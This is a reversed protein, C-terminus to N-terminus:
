VQAGELTVLHEQDHEFAKQMLAAVDLEGYVVHTGSKKWEADDLNRLYTCTANRLFEYADLLVNIDGAGFDSEWDFRAPDWYEWVPHDSQALEELRAQWVRREVRWLHGITAQTSWTKESSPQLGGTRIASRVQHPVDALRAILDAHEASQQMEGFDDQADRLEERLDDQSWRELLHDHEFHLIDISQWEIRKRLPAFDLYDSDQTGTFLIRLIVYADDQFSDMVEVQLDSFAGRVQAVYAQFAACDGSDSDPMSFDTYNGACLDEAFSMNGNQWVQNVWNEALKLLDSM